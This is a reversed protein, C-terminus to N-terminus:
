RGRRRIEAVRRRSRRYEGMAGELGGSLESFSMEVPTPDTKGFRRRVTRAIDIAWWKALLRIKAREEPETEWVKGLFAFFGLGWTYYQRRLGEV